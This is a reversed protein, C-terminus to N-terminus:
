AKPRQVSPKGNTGGTITKGATIELFVDDLKAREVYFEKVAIDSRSLLGVIQVLLLRQDREVRVDRTDSRSYRCQARQGGIM